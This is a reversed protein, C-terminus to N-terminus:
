FMRQLETQVARAEADISARARATNLFTAAERSPCSLLAALAERRHRNASVMRRLAEGVDARHCLAGLSKAAALRRDVQPDSLTEILQEVPPAPAAHLAALAPGRTANDLVMSLFQEVAPESGIALLQAIAAQRPRPQATRAIIVLPEVGGVRAVAPMAEDTFKPDRAARALLPASAPGGLDSLLRIAARRRADDNMTAFALSLEREVPASRLPRLSALANPYDDEMAADIASRVAARVDVVPAAASMVALRERPTPAQAVIADPQAQVVGPQSPAIVVPPPQPAPATRVQQAIEMPVPGNRARLFWTGGVALVLVAAAAAPWGIRLIHRPRPESLERWQERLRTLAHPPPDPWHAQDLLADLERDLNDDDAHSM